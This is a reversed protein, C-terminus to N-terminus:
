NRSKLPSALRLRTMLAEFVARDDDNLETWLTGVLFCGYTAMLGVALWVVSVDANWGLATRLALLAALTLGGSIPWTVYRPNWWVFALRQRMVRLASLNIFLAALIVSVGVGRIGALPITVVYLVVMLGSGLASIRLLAAEQGSMSMLSGAPGSALNTLVAVLCLILTLTGNISFEEGYLRLLPGGFVVLYLILPLALRMIWDTTMHYLAQRRQTADDAGNVGAFMPAVVALFMLHFTNPPQQLQRVIMLTAVAEASATAGLIFRDLHMTVNSVQGTAYSISAYRAWRGFPAATPTVARDLRSIMRIAGLVMFTLAAVGGVVVAWAYGQAGWGMHFFLLTFIIKVLLAVFSTSGIMIMIEQFGRLIQQYLFTLLGIPVTLAMIDALREAAPDIGFWTTVPRVLLIIASAVAGGIVALALTALLVLRRIHEHEGKTLHEPIFRLATQAIGFSFFGSLTVVTAEVLGFLGLENAGLTRAVYIQFPLGAALTFFNGGLVVLTQGAVAVGTRSGSSM